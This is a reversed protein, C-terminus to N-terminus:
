PGVCRGKIVPHNSALPVASMCRCREPQLVQGPQHNQLADPLGSNVVRWVRERSPNDGDNISGQGSGAQKVVRGGKAQGEYPFICGRGMGAECQDEYLCCGQDQYLQRYFATRAGVLVSGVGIQGGKGGFGGCGGVGLLACGGVICVWWGGVWRASTGTFTAASRGLAAAGLQRSSTACPSTQQTWSTVMM